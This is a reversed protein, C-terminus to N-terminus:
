FKIVQSRLFGAQEEGRGKYNYLDVYLQVNSVIVLRDKVQSGYYVGEDYPKLLIVNSGSEVRKLDLRKAIMPPDDVYAFAQNYRTFPAIRSVGSFLTLAYRVNQRQCADAISKETVLVNSLSYFNWVENLNYSYENRWGDLLNAPKALRIGDKDKRAIVDLEELRTIVKFVQGVSLSAEYALERLTWRRDPKLLLVRPIRSSKGKFISKFKRESPYQNPNGKVEIYTGNFALLCNGSLDFFGIGEEKCIRRGEESVYPAVVVPYLSKDKELVIKLHKAALRLYKPFGEAMVECIIRKANKRGLAQAELMLDVLPGKSRVVRRLSLTPYLLQFNKLFIETIDKTLM